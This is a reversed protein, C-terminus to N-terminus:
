ISAANTGCGFSAASAAHVTHSIQFSQDGLMESGRRYRCSATRLLRHLYQPLTFGTFAGRWINTLTANGIITVGVTVIQGAPPTLVFPKVIEPRLKVPARILDQCPKDTDLHFGVVV